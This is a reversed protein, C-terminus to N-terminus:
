NLLNLLPTDWCQLRHFVMWDYKLCTFKVTYLNLETWDNLRTQNKAIGHVAAHWAERAHGDGVQPSAWVWTWQTLSSMWGDWGRNDGEGGAKLWERCWPRKLHTLEKCWTALTKSNWSWRIKKTESFYSTRSKAVQVFNLNTVIYM